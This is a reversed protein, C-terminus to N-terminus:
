GSLLSGDAMVLCNSIPISHLTPTPKSTDVGHASRDKDPQLDAFDHNVPATQWINIYPTFSKSSLVFVM